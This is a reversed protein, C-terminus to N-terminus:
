WVREASKRAGGASGAAEARAIPATLATVQEATHLKPLVQRRSQAPGAPPAELAPVRMTFWSGLKWVPEMKHHHTELAAEADLMSQRLRPLLLRAFRAPPFPKKGSTSLSYAPVKRAGRTCTAGGQGAVSLQFKKLDEEPSSTQDLAKVWDGGNGM